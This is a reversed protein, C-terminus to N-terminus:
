QWRLHFTTQLSRMGGTSSPLGFQDSTVVNNWSTFAAHNFTNTASVAVDLYWKGHPRFTRNMQTNFTFQDPGTISDRGATGWGGIPESYAAANLHAATGSNYISAGTLDPRIINSFGTGPVIGPYLPTEPLGTGYTLNGAMTWEKLARGRWGGLLTGGELGQGSTYQAQLNVLQRQDFNSLSREARPDLWNQAIAASPTSLSASQASGGSSAIQHGAGGM